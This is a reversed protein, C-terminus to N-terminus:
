QARSGTLDRIAELVSQTHVGTLCERDFPCTKRFCPSCDVAAPGVVRVREGRPGTWEPSTSGFIGVTPTGLAAALHMPGSDNGVFLDASELLAAFTPLDTQGALDLGGGAQAMASSRERERPADSGVFVPRFGEAGLTRAVELFREQPWEKTVGYNASVGFIVLRGALDHRTRLEALGTVGRDGVRWACHSGPAADPDVLNVWDDVLHRSRPKGPSRRVDNLFFERGAGGLGVRLPIRGAASLAAARLSPGFVWAAEAGRLRRGARVLGGLGRDRGRRDFIEIRDVLDCDELLGSLGPAVVATVAGRERLRRLAPEVMVLDGLWNPLIALTM